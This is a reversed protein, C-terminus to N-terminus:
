RRGADDSRRRADGVARPRPAAGTSPAFEHRLVHRLQDRIARKIRGSSVTDFHLLTLWQNNAIAFVIDGLTTRDTRGLRHGRRDLIELLARFKQLLLRDMAFFEGEDVKTAHSLAAAYVCRWLGRDYVELGWDVMSCALRVIAGVPDTAGAAFTPWHEDLRAKFHHAAVALLLSDKTKFYNYITGPAVETRAAIAEISTPAFGQELFLAHAAVLIDRRRRLRQRERLSGM